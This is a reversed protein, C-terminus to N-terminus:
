LDVLQYLDDLCQPRGRFQLDLFHIFTVIHPLVAFERFDLRIWPFIYMSQSTTALFSPDTTPPGPSSLTATNEWAFISV